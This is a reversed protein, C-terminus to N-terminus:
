SSFKWQCTGSRKPFYQLVRNIYTVTRINNIYVYEWALYIKINGGLQNKGQRNPRRKQLDSRVCVPAEPGHTWRCGSIQVLGPIVWFIRSLGRYAWAQPDHVQYSSAVLNLAKVWSLFPAIWCTAAKWGEKGGFVAEDNVFASACCSWRENPILIVCVRSAWFTTEALSESLTQSVKRATKIRPLQMKRLTRSWVPKIEVLFCWFVGSFLVGWWLVKPCWKAWGWFYDVTADLAGVKTSAQDWLQPRSITALLLQAGLPWSGWSGNLFSKPLKWAECSAAALLTYEPPIPRRPM